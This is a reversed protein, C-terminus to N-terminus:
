ITDDMEHQNPFHSKKSTGAKDFDADTDEESSISASFPLELVPHSQFPCIKVIHCQLLQLHYARTFLAKKDKSKRYYPVDVVCFYCDSLHDTPERWIRPIAFPM